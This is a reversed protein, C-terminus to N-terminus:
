GVQPSASTTGTQPANDGEINMERVVSSAMGFAEIAVELAQRADDEDFLEWPTLNDTEDGYDTRVHVDFGYLEAIEMLRQVPAILREAWKNEDVSRRLEGAPYHTRGVPGLVALVAKASNEISLQANDIASRWRGLGVDQRAEELFGEALRLRYSVHRAQNM